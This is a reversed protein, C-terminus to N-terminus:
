RMVEQGSSNVVSIDVFSDNKFLIREALLEAGTGSELFESFFLETEQLNLFQLELFHNIEQAAHEAIQAERELASNQQISQFRAISPLGVILLPVIAALLGFVTLKTRLSIRM